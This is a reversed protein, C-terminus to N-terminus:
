QLKLSTNDVRNEYKQNLRKLIENAKDNEGIAKLSKAYQQYYKPELDTTMAFLECYWKAAKDLEFNTYYSDGITKFMVISKYGKAVIREYTKVVDVYAYKDSIIETVYFKENQTYGNFSYVNLVLLVLLNKKM